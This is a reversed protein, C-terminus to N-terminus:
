ILDNRLSNSSDVAGSLFAQLIQVSCMIALIAEYPRDVLNVVIV